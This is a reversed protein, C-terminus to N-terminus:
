GGGAGVESELVELVGGVLHVSGTVLVKVREGDRGDAGVVWADAVDRCLRVGEEVTRVVHVEARGVTAVEGAGVVDDGDGGDGGDVLGWGRALERQVCLDVGGDGDGYVTTNLSV